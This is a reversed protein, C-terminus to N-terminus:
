FKRRFRKSIFNGKSIDIEIDQEMFEDRYLKDPVEEIPKAERNKLYERLVAKKM